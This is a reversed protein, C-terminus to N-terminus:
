RRSSPGPWCPCYDGLGREAGMRAGVQFAQGGVLAVTDAPGAIRASDAMGTSLAAM